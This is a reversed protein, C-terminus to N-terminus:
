AALAGTMLLLTGMTASRPAPTTSSGMEACTSHVVRVVTRTTAIGTMASRLALTTLPGTAAFMM